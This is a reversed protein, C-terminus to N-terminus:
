RWPTLTDAFRTTVFTQDERCILVQCAFFAEAVVYDLVIGFEEEEDDHYHKGFRVLQGHKFPLKEKLYPIM